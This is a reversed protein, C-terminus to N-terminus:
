ERMRLGKKVSLQGNETCGVRRDKNLYCLYMIGLSCDVSYKNSGRESEDVDVGCSLALMLM